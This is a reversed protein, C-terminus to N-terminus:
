EFQRFVQLVRQTTEEWSFRKAHALGKAALAERASRDTLLRVLQEAMAGPDNPDVLIGAEGIVEPLSTTNSCVVPTGCAMAELPPLGFGEYLSPYLFVDAASYLGPLDDDEVYGLLVIGGAEAETLPLTSLFPSIARGRWPRGIVVLGVEQRLKQPFRSYAKVAAVLNKRPETSGMTLIYRSPLGYKEKLKRLVRDEEIRAFKEEIGLYVVLVKSPDVGFRRVLQDKSFESISIFRDGVRTARQILMLHLYRQVPHDYYLDPFVVPIIDLNSVITPCSKILPASLNHFSFYLDPRELLIRKLLRYVRSVMRFARPETRDEAFRVKFNSAAIIGPIYTSHERCIVVYENQADLKQLHRLVNFAVRDTGTIEGTMQYANMLIKM